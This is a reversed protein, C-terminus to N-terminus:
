LMTLNSLPRYAKDCTKDTVMSTHPKKIFAHVTFLKCSDAFGINEKGPVAVACFVRVACIYMWEVSRLFLLVKPGYQRRSDVKFVTV